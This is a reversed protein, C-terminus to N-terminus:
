PEKELINEGGWRALTLYPSFCKTWRPWVYNVRVREGGVADTGEGTITSPQWGGGGAV